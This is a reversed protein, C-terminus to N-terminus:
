ECGKSRKPNWRRDIETRIEDLTIEIDSEGVWFLERKSLDEDMYRRVVIRSLLLESEHLAKNLQYIKEAEEEKEEAGFVYLIDITLVFRGSIEDNAIDDVTSYEDLYDPINRLFLGDYSIEIYVNSGWINHIIPSTRETLGNCIMVEFYNDHTVQLEATEENRHIFVEFVFDPNNKKSFSVSYYGHFHNRGNYHRYVMEQEFTNVLHEEAVMIVERGTEANKNLLLHIQYVLFGTIAVVILVIVIVVIQKSSLINM